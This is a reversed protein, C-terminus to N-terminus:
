PLAEQLGSVPLAPAHIAPVLVGGVSARNVSMPRAFGGLGPEDLPGDGRSTFGAAAAGAPLAFGAGLGVVGGLLAALVRQRRRDFGGNPGSSRAAGSRRKGPPRSDLTSHVPFPLRPM